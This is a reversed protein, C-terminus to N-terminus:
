EGQAEQTSSLAETSPGQQSPEDRSTTWPVEPSRTMQPQPTPPMTNTNVRILDSLFQRQEGMSMKRNAASAATMTSVDESSISVATVSRRPHDHSGSSSDPEGFGCCGCLFSWPGGEAM